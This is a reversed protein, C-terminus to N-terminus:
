RADCVGTHVTAEALRADHVERRDVRVDRPADIGIRVRGESALVKVVIRGDIVIEQGPKRTLVIM